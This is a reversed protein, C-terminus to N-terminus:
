MDESMGIGKAASQSSTSAEFEKGCYECKKVLM